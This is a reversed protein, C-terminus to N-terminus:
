VHTAFFVLTENGSQKNMKQSRYKLLPALVRTFFQHIWACMIKYFASVLLLVLPCIVLKTLQLQVQVGMSSVQLEGVQGWLYCKKAFWLASSVIQPAYPPKPIKKNKVLVGGQCTHVLPNVFWINTHIGLTVPGWPPPLFYIFYFLIILLIFYFLIGL